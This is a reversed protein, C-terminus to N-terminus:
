EIIFYQWVPVARYAATKGAPVKLTISTVTVGDFPDEGYSVTVPNDWAATIQTLGVCDGFAYTGIHTISNPITLTNIKSAGNVARVAIRKVDTPITFATGTKGAPYCILEKESGTSYLVGDTAAFKTNGTAVTVAPLFQCDPFPNGNITIVSAPIQVATLGSYFFAAVGIEELGDPLTVTTLKGCNAFAYQGIKKVGKGISVTELNARDLFEESISTVNDGIVASTILDRYTIWPRESPMEGTGEVTLKGDVINWTFGNAMTGSEIIVRVTCTAKYGVDNTTVTITTTGAGIGTILGTTADITAVAPDGGSWKVTKDTANAPEIIVVPTVTGGINTIIQTNEFRVGTVPIENRVTVNCTATLERDNTTVTITTTGIGVGTILGTNADITAVAPDGGSWKVTKDTANAPEITIAPTATGGKIVTILTGEFSVKSVHIIDLEVTVTVTASKGGSAATIVATGASVGSVTGDDAVTAIDMKNSTWTVTKDTANEPLVTATLKITKGETVKPATENITVTEVAIVTEAVTVNATASKGGAKATIVATGATEAKVKGNNDVTAINPKDSTWAVAKDTADAPTVSAM